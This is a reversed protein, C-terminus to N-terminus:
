IKSANISTVRLFTLEPNHLNPCSVNSYAVKQQPSLKTALRCKFQIVTPRHQHGHHHHHSALHPVKYVQLHPVVILAPFSCERLKIKVIVSLAGEQAKEHKFAIFTDVLAKM